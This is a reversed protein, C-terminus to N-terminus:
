EEVAWVAYFTKGKWTETNITAGPAFFCPTNDEAFGDATGVEAALLAAKDPATASTGSMYNAVNSWESYIWGVLHVHNVECDNATSGDFADHNPTTKEFTVVGSSVTAVVDAFTENHIIDVFQVVPLPEVTVNVVKTTLGSLLFSISTNTLSTVGAAGHFRYYAPQKSNEAISSEKNVTYAKQDDILDEPEWTVDLQKVENVYIHLPDPIEEGGYKWTWASAPKAAITATTTLTANQNKSFTLTYETTTNIPTSITPSISVTGTSVGFSLATAQYGAALELTAVVETDDGCTALSSEPDFTITSGSAADDTITPSSLTIINACCTTAYNSYTTGGSKKFLYAHYYYTGSNNGESKAALPQFYETSAGSNGNSMYIRNDSSSNYTNKQHIQGSANLNWEYSIVDAFTFENKTTQTIYNTGDYMAFYDADDGTGLIVTIEKATEPKTSIVGDSISVAVVGGHKNGGDNGTYGLTSKTMYEDATITAMLYTGASITTAKTYTVAGGASANAFVAHFTTNATIAPSTTQTTFLTTPATSAHSYTSTTWGVFVKTGDCDSSTPATPIAAVKNNYNASTSGDTGEGTTTYPTWNEGNVKWAVTYTDIEWQAYLKLSTGDYAWNGSADTYTTTSETISSGAITGNANLIKTGSSAATYYGLLHYGTKSAHSIEETMSSEGYTYSVSGDSTGSTGKDLTIVCIKPAWGAYLTGAANKTFQSSGNTWGDISPQLAGAATAVKNICGAEKYYGDVTYGTRSPATSITMSTAGNAITGAGDASGGNKDLTIANGSATKKYMVVDAQGSRYHAYRQSGSAINYRLYKFYYNEKDDKVPTAAGAVNTLTVVDNTSIEVTYDTNTTTASTYLKATNKAPPTGIYNGTAMQITIAGDTVSSAAITVEYPSTTAISSMDITGTTSADKTTGSYLYGQASTTANAGDSRLPVIVDTNASAEYGIIFTGGATIEATTTVRTWGSQVSGWASGICFTLFFLLVFSFRFLTKRPNVQMKESGHTSAVGQLLGATISYISKM